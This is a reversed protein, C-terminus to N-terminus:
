VIVHDVEISGLSLMIILNVQRIKSEDSTLVLGCSTLIVFQLM